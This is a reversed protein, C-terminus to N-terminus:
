AIASACSGLFRYGHEEPTEYTEDLENTLQLRQSHTLQKNALQKKLTRMKLLLSGANYSTYLIGASGSAMLTYCAAEPASLPQTFHPFSLLSFLLLKKM